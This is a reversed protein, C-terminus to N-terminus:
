IIHDSTVNSQSRPWAQPILNPNSIPNIGTIPLTTRVCRQLAAHVNEVLSPLTQQSLDSKDSQTYFDGPAM